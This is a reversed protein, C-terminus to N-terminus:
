YKIKMFLISAATAFSIIWYLSHDLLEFMSKEVAILSRVNIQLSVKKWEVEMQGPGIQMTSTQASCKIPVTEGEVFLVKKSNCSVTIPINSNEPASVVYFCIYQKLMDDCVTM